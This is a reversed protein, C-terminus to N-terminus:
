ETEVESVLWKRGKEQSFVAEKKFPEKQGFAGGVDPTAQQQQKFQEMRMANKEELTLPKGSVRVEGEDTLEGELGLNVAKQLADLKANLVTVDMMEDREEVPNFKFIWDTVGLKPVIVNNFPEEFAKQYMETTNNEVDIQMRPNNGTKGSEVVGVFVPTVGYVACVVERWLKWWDLSQMKDSPPMANVATIGKDSAGLFLTTLTGVQGVGPVLEAQEIQTKVDKAIQNAAEQSVGNFALIQALKGKSFTVFNFTDMANICMLVRICSILKSNGYLGPLWPDNHDHLIEDRAFRAKVVSGDIMVYATEKLPVDPHKKCKQGEAYFKEPTEKTCDPCFWEGNGIRGFKDSVIRMTVSDEVYVTLPVDDKRYQISLYWDDVSLMYKLASKVIHVMENDPNPDEIFAELIKKQDPDPDVTKADCVNCQEKVTQFEAGCSPCKRLWKPKVEWRNRTVEKIIAEHVTRVVENSLSWRVLTAYSTSGFPLEVLGSQVENITNNIQSRRQQEAYDRVAKAFEEKSPLSHGVFREMLRQRLPQKAVM